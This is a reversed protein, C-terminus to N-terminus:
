SVKPNVASFLDRCPLNMSRSPIEAEDLVTGFPEKLELSWPDGISIAVREFALLTGAFSLVHLRVSPVLRRHSVLGVKNHIATKRHGAKVESTIRSLAYSRINGSGHITSSCM